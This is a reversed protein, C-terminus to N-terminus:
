SIILLLHFPRTLPNLIAVRILALKERDLAM